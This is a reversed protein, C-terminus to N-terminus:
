IIQKIAELPTRGEGKVDKDGKNEGRFSVVFLEEKHQYKLKRFREINEMVYEDFTKM